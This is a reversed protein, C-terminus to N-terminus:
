SLTLTMPLSTGGLAVRFVTPSITMYLQNAIPKDIYEFFSDAM